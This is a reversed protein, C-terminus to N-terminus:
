DKGHIFHQQIMSFLNFLTYYLNLGSSWNYFLSTLFIPMFYVMMRQNPDQMTKKQQLFMTAGMLIPILNLNSTNLFPITFPLTALKDPGSLDKIWLIFPAGRLDIASRFVMFLAILLPMQLLMPLCGGMPNVGHEKYLKMTERQLRQKDAKHKEKIEKMQPQLLQMKKMSAFSKHTLPYLIIKVLVSFIVIVWGYNPIITYMKKLTWLVAISFPRIFFLGLTMTQELKPALRKLVGYDLPGFYVTFLDEQEWRRELSMRISISHRKLGVKRDGPISAQFCIGSGPNDQHPIMAIEFYKTRAAVWYTQGNLDKTEPDKKAHLTEIQNGMLAYAKADRMDMATDEETPALASTFALRYHNDDTIETLGVLRVKLDFDYSSRHFTYEKILGRGQEDLLSFTLTEEPNRADIRVREKNCSFVAGSFNL